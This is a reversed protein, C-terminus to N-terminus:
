DGIRTLQLGCSNQANRSVSDSHHGYLEIDDGDALRVQIGCHANYEQAAESTGIRARARTLEAGNLYITAIVRKDTAMVGMVVSGTVLYLGGLGAPVTAASDSGTHFGHTDEVEGDFTIATLTAATLTQTSSKSLSVHPTPTHKITGGQEALNGSTGTPFTRHVGVLGGRSLLGYHTGTGTNNDAWVNSVFSDLCDYVVGSGFDCDQLAGFSYNFRLAADVDAAPRSFKDHHFRIGVSQIVKAEGLIHLYDVSVHSSGSVYVADVEHDTATDTNGRVHLRLDDRAYAAVKGEVYVTDGLDGIIRINYEQRMVDPIMSHAKAFTQFAAGSSLGSNNDSGSAADVYYTVSAVARDAKVFAGPLLGTSIGTM